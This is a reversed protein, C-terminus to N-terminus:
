NVGRFRGDADFRCTFFATRKEREYWGRVSYGGSREAIAGVTTIDDPRRSFAASAEGRCYRSLAATAVPPRERRDSWIPSRDRRRDDGDQRCDPATTPTISAYRGDMTAITVCQRRRDNWWYAYSRDDGKEGRVNRYGRQVLEGEAQGARAGVMDDLGTTQSQQPPVAITLMATATATSLAFLM